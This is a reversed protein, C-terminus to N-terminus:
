VIEGLETFKRCLRSPSNRPIVLVESRILQLRPAKKLLQIVKNWNITGEGPLSHSDDSGDNDHLHCSVIQPLTKELARDDWEPEDM